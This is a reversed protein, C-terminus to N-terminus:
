RNRQEIIYNPARQLRFTALAPDDPLLCRFTVSYGTPGHPNASAPTLLDTPLFQRGRQTCYADAKTMATQQATTSGGLIPAAQETLM